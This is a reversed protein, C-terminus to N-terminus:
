RGTVASPLFNFTLDAPLTTSTEAPFQKGSQLSSWEPEASSELFLEGGLSLMRTLANPGGRAWLDLYLDDGQVGRVNVRTIDEQGGVITILRGYAAVSDIGRFRVRTIGSGDGGSTPAYRAVLKDQVTDIGSLLAAARTNGRAEFSETNDRDLLTWRAEWRGGLDRLRGTLIVDHPYRKSAERIAAEYGAWLDAASLASQDLLDVLPLQLPMGRERARALLIDRTSTENELSVLRRVGKSESALWLLVRPRRAGWLPIGSERMARDLSAKDFRVWLYRAAPTGQAASAAEDVRYRFQQVLSPAGELLPGVAPNGGVDVSGSLRVLVGRLAQKFAENRVQLTDDAVRVETAYLDVPDAQAKGLFGLALLMILLRTIVKM